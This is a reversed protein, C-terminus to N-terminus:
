LLSGSMNTALRGRSSHSIGSFSFKLKGLGPSETTVASDVEIPELREPLLQAATVTLPAPAPLAPETAEAVPSEPDAAVDAGALLVGAYAEGLDVGALVPPTKAGPAADLATAWLGAWVEAAATGTVVGAAADVGAVAAAGAPVPLELQTGQEVSPATTQM